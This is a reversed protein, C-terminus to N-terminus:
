KTTRCSPIGPLSSYIVPPFLRNERWNNIALELPKHNDRRYYTLIVTSIRSKKGEKYLDVVRQRLALSMSPAVPWGSANFAEVTEKDLQLRDRFRQIVGPDILNEFAVRIATIQASASKAAEMLRGIQTVQPQISQFARIARSMERSQAGLQSAMRQHARTVGTLQEFFKKTFNIERFLKNIQNNPM